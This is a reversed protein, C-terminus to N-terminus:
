GTVEVHLGHEGDEVHNLLASTVQGFIWLLDRARIAFCQVNGLGDVGEVVVWAEQKQGDANFIVRKVDEIYAASM